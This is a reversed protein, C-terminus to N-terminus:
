RENEKRRKNIFYILGTATMILLGNGLTANGGTFNEFSFGGQQTDFNGFNFGQGFQGTFGDFGLGPSMTEPSRLEKATSFYADTQAKLSGTIMALFGFMFTSAILKRKM